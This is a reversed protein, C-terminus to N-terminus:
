TLFMVGKYAQNLIVFFVGAVNHNYSYEMLM